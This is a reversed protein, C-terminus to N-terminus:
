MRPSVSMFSHMYEPLTDRGFEKPTLCLGSFVTVGAHMCASLNWVWAGEWGKEGRGPTFEFRIDNLEKKSNRDPFVISM